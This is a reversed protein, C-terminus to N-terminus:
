KMKKFFAEMKKRADEEDVCKIKHINRGELNVTIKFPNRM